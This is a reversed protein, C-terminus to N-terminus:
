SGTVPNSAPAVASAYTRSIPASAAQGLATLAAELRGQWLAYEGEVRKAVERFPNVFRGQKAEGDEVSQQAFLPASTLLTRAVAYVAFSRTCSLFRKQATSPTEVASVTVYTDRLTASIDDLDADLADEYLQLALTSDSLEEDEVGLAARIDAYTTYATLM